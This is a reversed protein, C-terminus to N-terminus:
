NRELAGLHLVIKLTSVGLVTELDSDELFEGCSRLLDSVSDQGLCMYHCKELILVM